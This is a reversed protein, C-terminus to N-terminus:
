ESYDRFIDLLQRFDNPLDVSFSLNKGTLPHRFSLKYAHLAQRGFQEAARRLKAPLGTDDGYERDGIVPCGISQMHVRIQHTRGTELKVELLSGYEMEEVRQWNTIAQRGGKAVVAMRKRDHPARGLPADISGSDNIQVSRKRRPTSFVLAQYVRSIQREAFQAALGCHAAKNKAVVLLGSTDKDLRHVIGPRQPDPFQEPAEKLYKLLANLLTKQKNGAGPHVVLGAAKNVVLLAGDEYVLDLPYDYDALYDFPDPEQLVIEVSSGPAILQGAKSVVTGNVSILGSTIWNKIQSRTLYSFEPEASLYNLVIKDARLTEQGDYNFDYVKSM